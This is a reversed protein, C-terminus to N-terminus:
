LEHGARRLSIGHPKEGQQPFLQLARLKGVRHGCDHEAGGLKDFGLYALSIEEVIMLALVIVPGREQILQAGAEPRVGDPPQPQTIIVPRFAGPADKGVPFCRHDGIVKRIPGQPEQALRPLDACQGM